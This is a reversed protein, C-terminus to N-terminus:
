IHNGGGCREIDVFRWFICYRMLNEIFNCKREMNRVDINFFNFYYLNEFHQDM